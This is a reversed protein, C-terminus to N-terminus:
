KWEINTIVVKCNSASEEALVRETREVTGGAAVLTCNSIRLQEDVTVIYSVYADKEASNNLQFTVDFEDRIRVIEFDTIKIKSSQNDKEDFCGATLTVAIMVFLTLSGVVITKKSIM